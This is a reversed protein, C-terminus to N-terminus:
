FTRASGSPNDRLILDCFIVDTTTDTILEVFEVEQINRAAGCAATIGWTVLSNDTASATSILDSLQTFNMKCREILAGTSNEAIYTTLTYVNEVNWHIEIDYWQNNDVRNGSNQMSALVLHNGVNGNKAYGIHQNGNGDSSRNSWTDFEVAFSPTINGGGYGIMDGSSDGIRNASSLQHMVFAIGDGGRGNRDGFYLKFKLIFYSAFDIRKNHWMAMYQHYNSTLRYRNPNAGTPNHLYGGNTSDVLTFNPPTFDIALLSNTQFVIGLLVFIIAAKLCLNQPLNKM